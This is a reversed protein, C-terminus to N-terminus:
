LRRGHRIRSRLRYECKNHHNEWLWEELVELRKVSEQLEDIENLIHEIVVLAAIDDIEYYKEDCRKCGTFAERWTSLEENCRSCYAFPM